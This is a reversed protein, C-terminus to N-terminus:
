AAPPTPDDSLLQELKRQLDADTITPNPDNARLRDKLIEHRLIEREDTPDTPPTLKGAAALKLVSTAARFSTIDYNSKLQRALVKLARPLLAGLHDASNHWLSERRRALEARFAPHRTRWRHITHRNLDLERAVSSDSGGALLLRIAKLQQPTLEIKLSACEPVNHCMPNGPNVDSVAQDTVQNSHSM